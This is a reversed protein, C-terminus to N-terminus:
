GRIYQLQFAYQIKYWRDVPVGDSLPPKFRSALAAEFASKDLLANGSSQDIWVQLVHGQRGVLVLLIVEGQVLHEKPGSPYEPMVKHTFATSDPEATFPTAGRSTWPVFQGIGDIEGTQLLDAGSVTYIATHQASTHCHADAAACDPTVVYLAGNKVFVDLQGHEASLAGAFIDNNDVQTIIVTNLADGNSSVVPVILLKQGTALSGTTVKAPDVYGPPGFHKLDICQLGSIQPQPCSTSPFEVQAMTALIRFTNDPTLSLASANAGAVLAAIVAAFIGTM